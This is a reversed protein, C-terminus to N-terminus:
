KEAPCRPALAPVNSWPWNIWKGTDDVCPSGPPAEAIMRGGTQLPLYRDLLANSGVALAVILACAAVYSAIAGARTM